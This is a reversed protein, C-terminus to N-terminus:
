QYALYCGTYPVIHKLSSRGAQIDPNCLIPEPYVQYEADIDTAQDVSFDFLLCGEVIAVLHFPWGPQDSEGGIFSFKAGSERCRQQFAEFDQPTRRLAELDQPTTPEQMLRAFEANGVILCCTLPTAPIGLADLVKIAIQTSFICCNSGRGYIKIET